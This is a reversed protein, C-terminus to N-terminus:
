LCIFLPSMEFSKYLTNEQHWQTGPVSLNSEIQDRNLHSSTTTVITPNYEFNRCIKGSSSNSYEPIYDHLFTGPVTQCTNRSDKQNCQHYGMKPQKLVSQTQGLEKLFEQYLSLPSNMVLLM